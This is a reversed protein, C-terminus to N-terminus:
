LIAPCRSKSPGRGSEIDELSLASRSHQIPSTTSNFNVQAVSVDVTFGEVRDVTLNGGHNIQRLYVGSGSSAAVTEVDIEIANSNVDPAALLDANGILGGARM